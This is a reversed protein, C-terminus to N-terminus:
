AKRARRKLGLVGLGAAFLVMMGPEPVPAALSRVLFTESYGDQARAADSALPSEWIYGSQVDGMDCHDWNPSFYASACLTGGNSDTFAAVLDSISSFSANWQDATAFSFGDHLDLARDCGLGDGSCPSAYVWQLDGETVVLSDPVPDGLHSAAHSMTGAAALCLGLVLQAFKDKFQM